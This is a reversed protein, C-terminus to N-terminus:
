LVFTLGVTFTLIKQIESKPSGSPSFRPTGRRPNFSEIELDPAYQRVDLRLLMDPRLLAKLGGGFTFYFDSRNSGSEPFSVLDGAGFSGFAIFDDALPYNYLFDGFLLLMGVSERGEGDGADFEFGSSAYGLGGEISYSSSIDTGIRAGAYAANDYSRDELLLAGFFPTLQLRGGLDPPLFQGHARGASLSLVCTLGCTFVSISLWKHPSLDPRAYIM